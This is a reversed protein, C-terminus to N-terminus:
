RSKRYGFQHPLLIGSDELYIVLHSVIFRELRKCCVSTLSVLFYNLLSYRSRSKFLPIVHFRMWLEPLAGLGLFNEFILFM